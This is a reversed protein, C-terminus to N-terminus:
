LGVLQYIEWNNFWNYITNKSVQFISMLQSIKYGQNSLILCHARKRVLNHQSQQYIRRLMNLTEPALKNIYRM